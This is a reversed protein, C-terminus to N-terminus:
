LPATFRESVAPETTTGLLFRVDVVDGDKLSKWHKAIWDHAVTMTRSGATDWRHPDIHGEDTQLKIIAVPYAGPMGLGARALLYRQAENPIGGLANIDPMLEVAIVPIFTQLDRIELAKAIM